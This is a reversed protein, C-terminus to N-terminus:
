PWLVLLIHAKLAILCNCCREYPLFLPSTKTSSTVSFQVANICTKLINKNQMTFVTLLNFLSNYFLKKTTVWRLWCTQARRHRQHALKTTEPRPSPHVEPSHLVLREATPLPVAPLNLLLFFIMPIPQHTVTLMHFGLCRGQTSGKWLM